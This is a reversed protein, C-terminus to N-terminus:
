ASHPTDLQICIRRALRGNYLRDQSMNSTKKYAEASPVCPMVLRLMGRVARQVLGQARDDEARLVRTCVVVYRIGCRV